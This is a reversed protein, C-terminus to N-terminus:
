TRRRKLLTEVHIAILLLLVTLLAAIVIAPYLLIGQKRRLKSLEVSVFLDPCSTVNLLVCTEGVFYFESSGITFEQPKNTVSVVKLGPHSSADLPAYQVINFVSNFMPRNRFGPNSFCVSYYGPRTVNYTYTTGIYDATSICVSGDSRSEGCVFLTDGVLDGILQFSERAELTSFIWVEQPTATTDNPVIIEISSSPLMYRRDRQFGGSFTTTNLSSCSLGEIVAVIGDCNDSGFNLFGSALWQPNLNFELEVLVGTRTQTPFFPSDRAMQVSSLVVLVALFFSLLGVTIFYGCVWKRSCVAVKSGLFPLM